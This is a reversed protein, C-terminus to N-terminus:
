ADDLLTAIALGVGNASAPNQGTVLRECTVVQSEFPAAAIFTAGRSTLKDELLYPVVADLEVAKEEENTFSVVTKGEVLYSGDAVTPESGRTLAVVVGILLVLGLLIWKGRRRRAM